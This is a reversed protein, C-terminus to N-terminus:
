WSSKITRSFFNFVLFSAETYPALKLFEKYFDMKYKLRVAGSKGNPFYVNLFYFQEFESLLIRGENNLVAAPFETETKIPKIKLYTATGSYGPRLASNWCSEFGDPQILNMGLQGPNAKTEQIAVVDAPGQDLWKLFGKKAAARIGNVNWSILRIKKM